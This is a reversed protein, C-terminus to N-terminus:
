AGGELLTVAGVMEAASKATPTGVEAQTTPEDSPGIVFKPQNALQSGREQSVVFGISLLLVMALIIALFNKNSMNMEMM